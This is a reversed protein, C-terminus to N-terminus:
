FPDIHSYISERPTVALEVHSEIVTPGDLIDGADVEVSQNQPEHFQLRGPLCELAMDM